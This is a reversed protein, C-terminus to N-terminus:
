FYDFHMWLCVYYMFYLYTSLIYAETEDFINHRDREISAYTM